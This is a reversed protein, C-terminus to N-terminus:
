VLPAPRSIHFGQAYDVGLGRLAELTDADEVFEAVTLKGMVHGIENISRVFALDIPDRTINRVFMGDIKLMDVPLNKLYAFSSLGSGFDDLAFRCGLKKLSRIFHSALGLNAIVATETIEFCVSNAAHPAERLRTVVNHLFGADTMTHGSLNICCLHRDDRHVEIDSLYEFAKSFVWTDIRTSLHYNEAAPLFREPSILSGDEAEMRLLVEYHRGDGDAAPSLGQIHQLHLRLRENDLAAQIQTVWEMEGHRRVIEGDEHHHVHIRNRGLDKAAFCATDAASLVQSVSDSDADIGALGISVGISFVKNLWPFRFKEITDRLRDALLQAQALSAGDLLVGFEDGGLRALTDCDRLCGPLVEGLRRLLEDGAEHGCTDNIVKFQDLDLYCLVHHRGHQAASALATAVRQEFGARNLLGTLEDCQAPLSLTQARHDSDVVATLNHLKALWYVVRGDSATVPHADVLVALAAENACRLRCRESFTMHSQMRRRLRGLWGFQGRSGILLRPSAGLARARPYGTMTEFAENVYVITPDATGAVPALLLVPDRNHELTSFPLNLTMDSAILEKRHVALGTNGVAIDHAM